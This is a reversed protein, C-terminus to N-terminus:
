GLWSNAKEKRKEKLALFVVNTTSALILMLNTSFISYSARPRGEVLLLFQDLSDQLHQWSVIRFWFEGTHFSNPEWYIYDTMERHEKADGSIPRLPQVICM